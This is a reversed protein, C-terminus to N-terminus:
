PRRSPCASASSEARRALEAPARPPRRGKPPWTQVVGQSRNAVTLPYGGRMINRAMPQGMKGLGIFGISTEPM